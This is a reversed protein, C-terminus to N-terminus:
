SSPATSFSSTGSTAHHATTHNPTISSLNILRHNGTGLFTHPGLRGHHLFRLYPTMTSIIIVQAVREATLTTTPHPPTPHPTTHHPPPTHGTLTHHPTSMMLMMLFRHRDGSNCARSGLYHHPTTPHSTTPHTMLM